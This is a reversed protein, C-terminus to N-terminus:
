EYVSNLAQLFARLSGRDSAHGFRYALDMDRVLRAVLALRHHAPLRAAEEPTVGFEDDDFRQWVIEEWLELDTRTLALAAQLAEEFTRINADVEGGPTDALLRLLRRVPEERLRM